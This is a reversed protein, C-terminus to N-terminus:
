VKEYTSSTPRGVEVNRTEDSTTPTQTAPPAAPPTITTGAALTTAKVPGLISGETQGKKPKIWYYRTFNEQGIEDTYESALGLDIRRAGNLSPTDNFYLIYADADSRTFQVIVGLAKATCKLNTAPNPPVVTSELRKVAKRVETLFNRLTPDLNTPVEPIGQPIM